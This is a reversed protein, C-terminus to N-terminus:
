YNKILVEGYRTKEKTVSISYTTEVADINFDKFIERVKEHDNLSLIFKGKIKKLIAAMFEFEFRSFLDNGYDKECGFYPPDLYFLIDKHDYRKIFEKYDLCEITVGSLREHVEELISALKYINFRGSREKTVGFSQGAAKGGFANKQLYLFRAARELDTLTEINVSLLRNFEARSSLRWKLTDMFPNYHRQLIRFFNSVEKNYDNIIESQPIFNRRLFVGGMGIFPEAYIKHETENIIRTITKALKSKGGLYAAIPQLPQIEQLSM